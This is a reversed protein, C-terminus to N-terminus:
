KAYKSFYASRESRELEEKSISINNDNKQPVQIVKNLIDKKSRKIKPM